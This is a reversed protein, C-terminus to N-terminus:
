YGKEARDILVEQTERDLEIFQASFGSIRVILHRYHDPAGASGANGRCQRHQCASSVGARFYTEIMAALRGPGGPGSLDASPLNLSLPNGCACLSHAVHQASALVATPVAPTATSPGVGCSLHDRRRRGDPGAHTHDAVEAM